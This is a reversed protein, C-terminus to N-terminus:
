KSQAALVLGSVQLGLTLQQGTKDRSSIDVSEVKLAMPEKEIDHLFRSLTWLSGSADVRCVLTQYDDADNKWQPTIANISVGSEQSWHEFAKLVQEQALSPNNPLANTRMSDWRSRVSQERRVLLSGDAVQKRLQAVTQSRSKWAKALPTLILKDGAFLAVAAITLLLLLHQRNEIKM